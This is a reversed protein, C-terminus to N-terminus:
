IFGAFWGIPILLLVVQMQHIWVIQEDMVPSGAIVLASSGHHCSIPSDAVSHAPSGPRIMNGSKRGKKRGMAIPRTQCGNANLFTTKLFKRQKRSMVLSKNLLLHCHTKARM